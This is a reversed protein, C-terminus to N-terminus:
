RHARPEGGGAGHRGILSIVASRSAGPAGSSHDPSHHRMTCCLEGGEILRRQAASRGCSTCPRADHRTAVAGMAVNRETTRSVCMRSAARKRTKSVVCRLPDGETGTLRLLEGRGAPRVCGTTTNQFLVLPVQAWCLSGCVRAWGTARSIDRNRQLRSSWSM